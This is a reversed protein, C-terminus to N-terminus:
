LTVVNAMVKEIFWYVWKDWNSILSWGVGFDLIIGVYRLTALPHELEYFLARGIEHYKYM